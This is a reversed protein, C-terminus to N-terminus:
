PRQPRRMNGTKQRCRVSCYRQNKRRTFSKGCLECTASAGAGRTSGRAVRRQLTRTRRKCEESCWQSARNDPAFPAGCQRCNKKM